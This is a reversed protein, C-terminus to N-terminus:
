QNPPSIKGKKLNIQVYEPVPIVRRRKIKTESNLDEFIFPRGIIRSVYGLDFTKYVHELKNSMGHKAFEFSLPYRNSNQYFWRIAIKILDDASMHDAKAYSLIFANLETDTINDIIGLYNEMKYEILSIFCLNSTDAFHEIILPPIKKKAM